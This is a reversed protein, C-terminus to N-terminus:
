FTEILEGLSVGAECEVIGSAADFGIMRNLRTQVIVGDPNLSSDGYARGLGRSICSAGGGGDGRVLSQLDRTREPRYVNCEQVPLNGWGALSKKVYPQM